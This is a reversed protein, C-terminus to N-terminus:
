KHCRPHSGSFAQAVEKPVPVLDQDVDLDLDPHRALLGPLKDKLAVSSPDPRPIASDAMVSPLGNMLERMCHCIVSIRAAEDGPASTTQIAVLALRYVGALQPSREHLAQWVRTQREDLESGAPVLSEGM